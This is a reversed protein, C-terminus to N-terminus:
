NKSKVQRIAEFLVIGVTTALNLSRIEPMMPVRILSELNASLIDEPIGTNENGFVLYDGLKFEVDWYVKKASTTLFWLRKEAPENEIFDDWSSHVKMQLFQWYDLGARKMHKNTLHFGLPKILHLKSNTAACTRSINGVNQPIGPEFLVVNFDAM